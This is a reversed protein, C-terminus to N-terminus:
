NDGDRQLKMRRASMMQHSNGVRQGIASRGGLNRSIADVSSSAFSEGDALRLHQSGSADKNQDYMRHGSRTTFHAMNDNNIADTLNGSVSVGTQESGGGSINAGFVRAGNGRYLGTKDLNTGKGASGMYGGFGYYDPVGYFAYAQNEYGNPAMVQPQMNPAGDIQPVYGVTGCRQRNQSHCYVRQREDAIADCRRYERVCDAMPQKIIGLNAPKSYYSSTRWNYTGPASVNNFRGPTFNNQGLMQSFQYPDDQPNSFNNSAFHSDNFLTNGKM